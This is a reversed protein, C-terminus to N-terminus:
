RGQAPAGLREAKVALQELVAGGSAQYDWLNTSHDMVPCSGEWRLLCGMWVEGVEWIAVGAWGAAKIREMLGSTEM